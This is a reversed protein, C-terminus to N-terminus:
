KKEDANKQDGESMMMQPNKDTNWTEVKVKWTNDAQKQWVTVYKGEDDMPTTSGPMTFSMNWKGVEVAMDGSGIVDTTTFKASNIKMGQEMHEKAKEMVKALGRCEPEFAPLSIVDNAYYETMKTVDNKLMADIMKTNMAEIQKKVKDWDEAKVVAAAFLICCTLLVFRIRPSNM